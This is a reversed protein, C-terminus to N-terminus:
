IDVQDSETRRMSVNGVTHALEWDSTRANNSHMQGADYSNGEATAAVAALSSLTVLFM